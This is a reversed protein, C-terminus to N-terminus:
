SGPRPPPSVPPDPAALTTTEAHECPACYFVFVEPPEGLHAITRILKMPEHCHPCCPPAPEHDSM